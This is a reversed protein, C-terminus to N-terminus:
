KLFLSSPLAIFINGLFNSYASVVHMGKKKRSNWITYRTFDGGGRKLIRNTELRRLFHSINKMTATLPVVEKEEEKTEENLSNM